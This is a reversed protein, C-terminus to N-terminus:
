RGGHGSLSSLERGYELSFDDLRQAFFSRPPPSACIRLPLEEAVAIGPKLVGDPGVGTEKAGDAYSNERRQGVTPGRDWLGKPVFDSRDSFSNGKDHLTVIKGLRSFFEYV